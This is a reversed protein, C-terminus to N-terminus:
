PYIKIGGCYMTIPDQRSTKYKFEVSSNNYSIKSIVYHNNSLNYSYSIVNGNYDTLSTLPYSVVKQSDSQFGYIGKTGNPYFVEFYKIDNDIWYGKAKINGQESEYLQYNSNTSTKILRIGDLVFADQMNMSPGQTKGDYHISRATRVIKSLGGINWGMGMVSNGQQSNYSLSLSPQHGNMGKCVSIPVVYTRAGTQSIGSKIPIEGVGKSTDISKTNPVNSLGVINVPMKSRSKRSSKNVTSSPAEEKYAIVPAYLAKYISDEYTSYQDDNWNAFREDENQAHVCTNLMCLFAFVLYIKRM